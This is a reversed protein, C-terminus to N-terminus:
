KPVKLCVPLEGSFTNLPRSFVDTSQSTHHVYILNKGPLGEKKELQDEDKQFNDNGAVGTM